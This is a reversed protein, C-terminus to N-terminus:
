DMGGVGPEGFDTKINDVWMHSPRTLPRKRDPKRGIAWMYKEERGTM